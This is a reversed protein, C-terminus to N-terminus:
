RGCISTGCKKMKYGYAEGQTEQGIGGGELTAIRNRQPKTGAIKNTHIFHEGDPKLEVEVKNISSIRNRQPKTGVQLNSYLNKQVGTEIDTTIERAAGVTNNQPKTGTKVEGTKALNYKTKKVEREIQVGINCQYIIDDLHASKRKYIGIAKVVQFYDAEVRSQTTDLVVRFHFPNGGYEYWEEVESNPHMSGLAVEVAYGTGLRKHVKVSDKIISRKVDIPYSYEYWDVHLDYALVDLVDETLENIRAYIINNKILASTKLMEDAVVQALAKMKPDNKLSIPLTRTLDISYIDNM